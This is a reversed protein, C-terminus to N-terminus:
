NVEGTQQTVLAELEDNNNDAKGWGHLLDDVDSLSLSRLDSLQKVKATIEKLQDDNLELNLQQARDKIANWGTLRHAVHVYRSLRFDEPKLIEYTQPNNLVAKAHIGAKHMFASYGTIYNNFPVSIGVMEAVLHDLQYLLPLDYHSVLEPDLAYLRSVFGGLPTIGNREGIGLVTTDIFRAGGCVAAYANAIACGTDNHGHFEIDASVVSKVTSVLSHIQEPSGIGVTDAIGVRDVGLEDVVRYVQLLDVLNSRLSDETSFRVEVGQDCLWIVVERAADIIQDVSKGHGFERLLSSTGIVVDVGDVGTEVAKKADEMTCRVHTLVKSKLGLSAIATCDAHSQPSACPSTLEIYEVGFADLLKAIEIKNETSFFANAFQEGERLTSDIIGIGQDKLDQPACWRLAATTPCEM